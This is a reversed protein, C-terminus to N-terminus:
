SYIKAANVRIEPGLVNHCHLSLGRTPNSRITTSPLQFKFFDACKDKSQLFLVKGILCYFCKPFRM